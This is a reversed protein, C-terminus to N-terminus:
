FLAIPNVASGTATPLRLPAITLLFEWRRREQCALAVEDLQANDMLHLGMYVIAGTHVPQRLMGTANVGTSGEGMGSPLVDSVGDSGLVAVGRQHLWPLAGAHLGALGEMPNAVPGLQATRRQRGTRVLLIDGDEVRLNQRQEAAELDEPHIAEGPDLWDRGKVAPIDLLVGRSCIGQGGDLGCVEAGSSRVREAPFGNYMTGDWLFHCLADMHTIAFGHCAIGMFDATGTTGPIDGARLMMHQVPFYNEPGRMTPLPHALSVPGGDSVLAAARRRKEPTILNLTGHQDDAGWRGWNSISEMLRPLDAASVRATVEAM